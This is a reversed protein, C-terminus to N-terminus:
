EVDFEEGCNKCESEGYYVFNGCKPCKFGEDNFLDNDPLKEASKTREAKTHPKPATQKKDAKKGTSQGENKSLIEFM